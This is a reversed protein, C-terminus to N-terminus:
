SLESTGLVRLDWGSVRVACSVFVMTQIRVQVLTEEEISGVLVRRKTFYNVVWVGTVSDTHSHPVGDIYLSLLVM